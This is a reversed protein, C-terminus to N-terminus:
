SKKIEDSKVPKAVKVLEPFRSLLTSPMEINTEGLVAKLQLANAVAQGWPHNNQIVYTEGTGESVVKVKQAIEKIEKESYYYDYRAGPSKKV